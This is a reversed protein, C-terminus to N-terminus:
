TSNNFMHTWELNIIYQSAFPFITEVPMFWGITVISLSTQSTKVSPALNQADDRYAYWNPQLHGLGIVLIM